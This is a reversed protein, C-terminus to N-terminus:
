YPYRKRKHQTTQKEKGNNNIASPIDVIESVSRIQAGQWELFMKAQEKCNEPLNITVNVTGDAMTKIQRVEAVYEVAKVKPM